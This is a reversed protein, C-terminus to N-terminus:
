RNSKTEAGANPQAHAGGSPMLGHHRTNAASSPQGRKRGNSDLVHHLLTPWCRVSPLQRSFRCIRQPRLSSPSTQADAGVPHRGRANRLGDSSPMQVTTGVVGSGSMALRHGFLPRLLALSNVAVEAKSGRAASMRSSAGPQHTLGHHVHTSSTWDDVALPLIRM